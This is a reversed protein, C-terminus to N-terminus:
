AFRTKRGAGVLQDFFSLARSGAHEKQKQTTM